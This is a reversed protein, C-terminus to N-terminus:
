RFSYKRGEKYGHLVFHYYGDHKVDPNNQLYYEEDWFLNCMKRGEFRGNEMFHQFASQFMGAKVAAAVDPNNQLYFDPDFYRFTLPVYDSFGVNFGGRMVMEKLDVTLDVAANSFHRKVIDGRICFISASCKFLMPNAVMGIKPNRLLELTHDLRDFPSLLTQRLETNIESHWFFLAHGQGGDLMWQKILEQYAGHNSCVGTELVKAKPRTKSIIKKVANIKQSTSAPLNVYIKSNPMNNIRYSIEHWMDHWDLNCFIVNMM